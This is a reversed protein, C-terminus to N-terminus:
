ESHGGTPMLSALKEAALTRVTLDRDALAEQFVPLSAQDVAASDVAMLRVDADRDRLAARLLEPAEAGARQSLGYVAQARVEANEDSLANRLTSLVTAPDTQEDAALRAVADARQASDTGTALSLLKGIEEPEPTPATASRAAATAMPVEAPAPADSGTRATPGFSSELIWVEVPGASRHGQKAGDGYRAMLDPERGLLCALVPKLAKGECNADVPARPLAPYHIRTGTKLALTDLVQGLPADRAEVIIAASEGSTAEVRLSPADTGGLAFVPILALAGFTELKGTSYM